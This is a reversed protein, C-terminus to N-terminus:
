QPAISKLMSTVISSAQLVSEQKTNYLSYLFTQDWASLGQPPNKSEQFLRLITPAGGLDADARIEALGLMAVYDALQGVNLDHTRNMDVVIIVSSLSQVATYRLRTAERVKNTPVRMMELGSGSLGAVLTDPSVADGDSSRFETNYWCRIPHPAHLFSNIHGVGNATNYMNPNRHSWKKLLLDPEPTVVVYFNAKCHESALPARIAAAIQSIRWLMFEGRERSLGAVLPCIPVNWRVLSDQHYHVVVSSVYHSVQRELQRRAEVTVTELRSKGGSSPATSPPTSPAQDASLASGGHLFLTIAAVSGVLGLRQKASRPTQAAQRPELKRGNM